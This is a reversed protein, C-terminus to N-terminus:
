RAGQDLFVTLIKSKLYGTFIDIKLAKECCPLPEQYLQLETGGGFPVPLPLAQM